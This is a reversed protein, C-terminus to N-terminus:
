PDASLIPGSYGLCTTYSDLLPGPISFTGQIGHLDYSIGFAKRIVRTKVKQRTKQEEDNGCQILTFVRHERGLFPRLHWCPTFGDNM